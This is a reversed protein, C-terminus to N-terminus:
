KCQPNGFNRAFNAMKAVNGKSKLGKNICACNVSKFGNNKCWKTFKGKNEEKIKIKGGKKFLGAAKLSKFAETQPNKPMVKQEEESQYADKTMQKASNWMENVASNWHHQRNKILSEKYMINGDADRKVKGSDDTDYGGAWHYDIWMKRPKTPDLYKGWARARKHLNALVLAAQTDRNLNMVNNGKAKPIDFSSGADKELDKISNIMTSKYTNPEVQFYGRGPGVGSTNNSKQRVNKNKSETIAIKDLMRYFDEEKYNKYAPLTKLHKIVKTTKPYRRANFNELQRQYEADQKKAKENERQAAQEYQYTDVPAVSTSSATSLRPSMRGGMQHKEIGKPNGQLDIYLITSKNKYECLVLYCDKKKKIDKVKAGPLTKETIKTLKEFVEKSEVDDDLSENVSTLDSHSVAIKDGMWSALYPKNRLKERIQLANSAIRELSKQYANGRIEDNGLTLGHM